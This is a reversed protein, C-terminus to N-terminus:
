GPRQPAGRSWRSLPQGPAVESQAYRIECDNHTQSEIPDLLLNM